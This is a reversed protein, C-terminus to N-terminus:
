LKMRWENYGLAGERVVATFNVKDNTATARTNRHHQNLDFVHLDLGLKLRMDNCRRQLGTDIRSASCHKERSAFIGLIYIKQIM